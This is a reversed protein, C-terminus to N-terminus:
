YIEEYKIGKIFLDNNLYIKKQLSSLDDILKLNISKNSNFYHDILKAREEHGHGTLVHVLNKGAKEGSQIDSLRDGILISKSLDINFDNSAEFIMNPSPKRWSKSSNFDNPGESNAYIANISYPLNILDIM